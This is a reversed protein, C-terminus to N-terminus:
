GGVNRNPGEVFPEVKVCQPRPTVGASQSGVSVLVVESPNLYQFPVTRSMAAELRGIIEANAIHRCNRILLFDMSQTAEGRREDLLIVDASVEIALIISAAEGPDLEILLKSVSERDIPSQRVLGAIESPEVGNRILEELVEPAAIVRGYLQELLRFAGVRCLNLLPSTDSVVIM